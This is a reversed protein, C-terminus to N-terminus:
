IVKGIMRDVASDVAGPPDAAAAARTLFPRAPTHRTGEHVFTAYSAWAKVFVAPGRTPNVVISSRLLGSRPYGTAVPALGWATRALQDGADRVVDPTDLDAILRTFAAVWGDAGIVQVGM